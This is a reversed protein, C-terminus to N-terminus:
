LGLDKLGQILLDMMSKQGRKGAQFMVRDVLGYRLHANAKIYEGRGEHYVREYSMKPDTMWRYIAVAMKTPSKSTEIEDVMMKVIAELETSAYV